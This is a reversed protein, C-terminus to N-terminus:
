ITQDYSWELCWIPNNSFFWIQMEETVISKLGFIPMKALFCYYVGGLKKENKRFDLCSLVEFLRKPHINETKLVWIVMDLMECMVKSKKGFITNKTNKPWFHCMSGESLCLTRLDDSIAMHTKQAQLGTLLSIKWINTSGMRPESGSISFRLFIKETKEVRVM